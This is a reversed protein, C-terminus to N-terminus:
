DSKEEFDRDLVKQLEDNLKGPEVKLGYSKASKWLNPMPFQLVKANAPEFSLKAHRDLIVFNNSEDTFETSQDFDNVTIISDESIGLGGLWEAIIEAAKPDGFEERTEELRIYPKEKDPLKDRWLLTFPDHDALKKIVLVIKDPQQGNAEILNRMIEQFGLKALEWREEDTREKLSKRKRYTNGEEIKDFFESGLIAKGSVEEFISDLYSGEGHKPNKITLDETRGLQWKVTRDLILEKGTLIQRNEEAWKKIEEEPTGKPFVKTEVQIDRRRLDNIIKPVFEGFFDNDRYSIFFKSRHETEAIQPSPQYEKEDM